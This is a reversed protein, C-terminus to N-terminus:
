FSANNIGFALVYIFRFCCRNFFLNRKVPISKGLVEYFIYVQIYLSFLILGIGYIVLASILEKDSSIYRFVGLIAAWGLIEFLKPVYKLIRRDIKRLPYKGKKVDLSDKNIYLKRFQWKRVLINLDFKLRCWYSEFISM